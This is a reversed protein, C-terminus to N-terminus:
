VSPSGSGPTKHKRSEGGREFPCGYRAPRLLKLLISFYIKIVITRKTLYIFTEKTLSLILRKPLTTYNYLRLSLSREAGIWSCRDTRYDSRPLPSARSM